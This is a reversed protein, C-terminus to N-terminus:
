VRLAAKLAWSASCLMLVKSPTLVAVPIGGIFLVRYNYIYSASQSARKVNQIHIYTNRIYIKHIHETLTHTGREKEKKEYNM